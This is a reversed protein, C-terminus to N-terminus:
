KECLEPSWFDLILTDAPGCDRKAQPPKQGNKANKPKHCNWELRQGQRHTDIRRHTDTRETGSTVPHLDWGSLRPLDEWRLTRLKLVDAFVRELACTGPIPIPGYRKSAVMWHGLNPYSSSADSLFPKWANCILLTSSSHSALNDKEMKGSCHYEM